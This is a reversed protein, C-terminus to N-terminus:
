LYKKLVTRTFFNGLLCPLSFGILLLYPVSIPFALVALLTLGYSGCAALVARLPKGAGLALAPRLAERVTKGDSLIPYFYTSALLTLLFVAICFAFPLLFVPSSAALRLYSVVGCAACALPVATLFFAPYATKFGQTFATRYHYLCDVDQDLVMRRVVAQMAYLAAPLTSVPLSSLIFLLNLKVLTVCELQLIEAFRRLGTKEPEDPRVGPGPKAYDKQFFM